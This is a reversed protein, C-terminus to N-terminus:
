VYGFERALPGVMQEFLALDAARFYRQWEGSAGKRFVGPKRGGRAVDCTAIVRDIVPASADVGLREFLGRLPPLLDAKLDEYRLFLYREGRLAAGEGHLSQNADRWSSFVEPLFSPYRFLPQGSAAFGDPDAFLADCAARDAEDEFAVMEGRVGALQLKRYHFWHSVAVDRPDRVLHVVLPDYVGFFGELKRMILRTHSPSKDGIVKAAIRHHDLYRQLTWEYFFRVFDLEMERVTRSRATGERFPENWGNNMMFYWERLAGAAGAAHELTPSPPSGILRADPQDLLEIPHMEGRCCIEPHADLLNMLWTTGSKMSGAIFVFRTGRPLLLPYRSRVAAQDAEVEASLRVTPEGFLAWRFAQGDRGVTSLTLTRAAGAGAPLELAVEHWRQQAPDRPDVCYRLVVEGDVAVCFECPGSEPHTWVDPHMALAAQFRLAGAPVTFDIAAPPHVFLYRRWRSGVMGQGAHVQDPRGAVQTVRGARLEMVLDMTVM